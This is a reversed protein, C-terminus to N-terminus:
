RRTNKHPRTEPMPVLVKIKGGKGERRNLWCKDTTGQIHAEFRRGPFVVFRCVVKSMQGQGTLGRLHKKRRVPGFNGPGANKEGRVSGDGPRGHGPGFKPGVLWWRRLCQKAAEPAPRNLEGQGLIKRTKGGDGRRVDRAGCHRSSWFRACFPSSRAVAVHRPCFSKL